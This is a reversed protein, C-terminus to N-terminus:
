GIVIPSITIKHNSMIDYEVETLGITAATEITGTTPKTITPGTTTSVYIYIYIYTYRMTIATDGQAFFSHLICSASYKFFRQFFCIIFAFKTTSFLDPCLLCDEESHGFDM